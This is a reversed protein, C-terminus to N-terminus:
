KNKSRLDKILGRITEADRAKPSLKLYTELEDAGRKYDKNGAYIGGLYRHAMAVENKGLSVARELEKQAEAYRAADFQRTKGNKSLNLLALGLYMHATSSSDNKKLALRLQAESAAAERKELLAIGYNLRPTFDDPKIRLSASLVEIAKDPQGIKLYQVGMENLALTFEPYNSVAVRLQEIAKKSDGARVSELAQQYLDVAPKPVNALAANLVGPKTTETNGFKPQLNVIVNFIRAVDARALDAGSLTRGKLGSEEVYVSERAIEYDKGADVTLTYSGPAISNFSFSGNLDAIVSLTESSTSDLTVKIASVDSRRGSPFYIRGQIKHKGGTGTNDIGGQAYLSIFSISLLLMVSLVQLSRCRVPHTSGRGTPFFM